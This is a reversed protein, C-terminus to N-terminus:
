RRAADFCRAGPEPGPRVDFRERFGMIEIAETVEPCQADKFRRLGEPTLKGLRIVRLFVALVLDCPLRGLSAEHRGISRAVAEVSWTVLSDPQHVM